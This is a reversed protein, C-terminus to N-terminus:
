RTFQAKIIPKIEVPFDRENAPPIFFGHLDKELQELQFSSVINKDIISFAVYTNLYYRKILRHFKNRKKISNLNFYDNLRERLPRESEKEGAIGIYLLFQPLGYILFSSRVIFMYIGIDDTPILKTLDPLDSYKFEKWTFTFHKVREYYLNWYTPDLHFPVMTTDWRDMDDLNAHKNVEEKFYNDLIDFTEKTVM